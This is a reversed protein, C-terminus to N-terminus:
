IFFTPPEKLHYICLFTFFFYFQATINSSIRSSFFSDWRVGSEGVVKIGTLKGVEMVVETTISQTLESLHSSSFDNSTPSTDEESEYNESEDSEQPDNSSCINEAVSVNVSAVKGQDLNFLLKNSFNANLHNVYANNVRTNSLRLPSIPYKQSIM